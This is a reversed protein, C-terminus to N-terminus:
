KQLALQRAASPAPLVSLNPAFRALLLVPKQYTANCWQHKQVVQLPVCTLDKVPAFGMSGYFGELEAFPLCYLVPQNAHRILFEVMRRAVGRGECRPLVYIGGLEASRADIPVIRGQGASASDFTAVVILEGPHSPVFGIDAYRANITALDSDTATHLTITM